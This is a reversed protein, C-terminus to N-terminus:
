AIPAKRLISVPHPSMQSLVRHGMFFVVVSILRNDGKTPILRSSRGVGVDRVYHAVLQAVDRISYFAPAIDTCVSYLSLKRHQPTALCRSAYAPAFTCIFTFISFHFAFFKIIIPIKAVAIVFLLILYPIPMAIATKAIASYKMKSGSSVVFVKGLHGNYEKVPHFHAPQPSCLAMCSRSCRSM